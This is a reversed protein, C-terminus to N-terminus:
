FAIQILQWTDNDFAAHTGTHAPGAQMIPLRVLQVSSSQEVAAAINTSQEAETISMTSQVLPQMQSQM